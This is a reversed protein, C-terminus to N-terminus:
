GGGLAAMFAEKYAAGIPLMEDGVRVQNGEVYAVHALGILYSKHIRFFQKAPLSAELHKLTLHSILSHDALSVKVYDGKGQFYHIDSHALRHTRSDARLLLYGAEAERQSLRDTARRVAKTFREFSIPKVLYDLAELEFGEVAYQPYATTFIVLPPRDLSRILGLGSLRPMNIDLFLLSVDDGQLHKMAELADACSGRLQLAPSHAVYDELTERALPEDDVILCPIPM